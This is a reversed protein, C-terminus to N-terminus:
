AKQRRRAAGLGALGLGLLALTGPEPVPVVSEVIVVLDNFDQDSNAYLVDEWALIYEGPIWPGASFPDIQIQDGTGNYAVMQDNDGNLLSDSYFLPGDSTGMYFGFENAAFDVTTDDFNVVVSGDALISLLSQSGTTQPGSFLEVWSGSDYRDYVGFTNINSNGAIEIVFTSVSGGSGAVQWYSDMGDDLYDEYANVSSDGGVTIGDLISQLNPNGPDPSTTSVLASASTAWASV